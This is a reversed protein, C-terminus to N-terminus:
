PLLLAEEAAVQLRQEYVSPTQPRADTRLRREERDGMDAPERRPWVKHKSEHDSDNESPQSSAVSAQHGGEDCVPQHSSSPRLASPGTAGRGDQLAPVGIGAPRERTPTEPSKSGFRSGGRTPGNTPWSRTEQGVSSPDGGLSGGEELLDDAPAASPGSEGYWLFAALTFWAGVAFTLCQSLIARPLLPFPDATFSQGTQAEFRWPGLLGAAWILAPTGPILVLAVPLDKIVTRVSRRIAAFIGVDDAVIAFQTLASLFLVPIGVYVGISGAGLGFALLSVPTLVVLFAIWYLTLRVYFRRAEDLFAQWRPLGDTITSRAAALYGASVFSFVILPLLVMAFPSLLAHVGALGKLRGYPHDPDPPTVKGASGYAAAWLLQIAGRCDFSPIPPTVFVMYGFPETSFAFPRESKARAAEGWAVVEQQDQSWGTHAHALHMGVRNDLAGVVAMALAVLLLSPHRRLLRLAEVAYGIGRRIGSIM